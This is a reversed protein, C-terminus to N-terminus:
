AGDAFCPFGGGGRLGLVEGVPAVRVGRVALASLLFPLRDAARLPDSGLDVVAGPGAGALWGAAPRPPLLPPSRRAWTVALQGGVAAERLMPPTKRGGPPRFFRPRRGIADAIADDTADLHRRWAAYGAALPLGPPGSGIEHGAAQLLELTDARHLATEASVFVCAPAESPRDLLRDVLLGVGRREPDWALTLAVARVPPLAEPRRAVVAGFLNSRPWFAGWALGAAVVGLGAAPALLTPWAPEYTM